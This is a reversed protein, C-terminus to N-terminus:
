EVRQKMRWYAELKEKSGAARLDALLVERNAKSRAGRWQDVAEEFERELAEGDLILSRQACDVLEAHGEQGTWYGLIVATDAEPHTAIFQAVEGLLGAGAGVLDARRDVDISALVSPARVLVTLLFENLRRGEAARRPRPTRDAGTAPRTAVLTEPELATLESLRRLMLSRLVGEPVQRIYPLALDALRAKGDLVALDVGQALRQFLYEAASVAGKVRAEFATRGERRM